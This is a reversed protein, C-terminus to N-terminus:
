EILLDYENYVDGRNVVRIEYRADTLTFFEIHCRDSSDTHRAICLGNSNYVYVDLDTYGDGVLDISTWEQGRLVVTFSDTAKAGLRMDIGLKPGDKPSASALGCCAAGMALVVALSLMQKFM